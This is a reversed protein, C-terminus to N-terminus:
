YVMFKMVKQHQFSRSPSIERFLQAIICVYIPVRRFQLLYKKTIPPQVTNFYMLKSFKLLISKQNYSVSILIECKQM